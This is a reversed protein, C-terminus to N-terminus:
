FQYYSVYCFSINSRSFIESPRTSLSPILCSASSDITNARTIKDLCLVLVAICLYSRRKLPRRMERARYRVSPGYRAGIDRGSSAPDILSWSFHGRSYGGLRDSHLWTIVHFLAPSVHWGVQLLVVFNQKIHGFIPFSERAVISHEMVTGQFGTKQDLDVCGLMIICYVVFKSDEDVLQGKEARSFGTIDGGSDKGNRQRDLKNFSSLM